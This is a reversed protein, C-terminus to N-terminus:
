KGYRPIGFLLSFKEKLVAPKRLDKVIDVFEHFAIKVPNNSNIDNPIGYVLKEDTAKFTGFLRDWIIFMGACNKDLNDPKNSHHLRHHTPTNFVWEMPGLKGLLETHVWMQYLYLISDTLLVAWPDFGILPMILWLPYKVFQLAFNGRVAVSFNYKKSNHHAVHFAYFFRNKHALRHLLYFMLDNVLILFVWAPWWSMDIDFLAFQHVYSFAAFAVGKISLITIFTVFGLTLNVLTDKTEYLRVKKISSMLIEFGIFAFFVLMTIVEEFGFFEHLNAM